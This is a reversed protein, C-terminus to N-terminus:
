RPVYQMFILIINYSMYRACIYVGITYSVKWKIMIIINYVSLDKSWFSCFGMCDVDYGTFSRGHYTYRRPQSESGEPSQYRELPLGLCGGIYIQGM